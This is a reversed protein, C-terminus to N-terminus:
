ANDDEKSLYAIAAALAKKESQRDAWARMRQPADRMFADLDEATAYSAAEKASAILRKGVESM